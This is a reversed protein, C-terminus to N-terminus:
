EGKHEEDLMDEEYIARNESLILSLTQTSDPWNWRVETTKFGSDAIKKLVNKREDLAIEDLGPQEELGAVYIKLRDKRKVERRLDGLFTDFESSDAGATYHVMYGKKGYIAGVCTCPGLGGSTLIDPANARKYENM